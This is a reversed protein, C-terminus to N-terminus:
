YVPIGFTTAFEAGVLGGIFGAIIMLGSLAMVPIAFLMYYVPQSERVEIFYKDEDVAKIPILNTLFKEVQHDNNSATIDLNYTGSEASFKKLETRGTDWGNSYVRFWTPRLRIEEGTLQNTLSLKFENVPTKRFLQGKQWIAYVGKAEIRFATKKQTFPIEIILKGNFTKRLMRIARVLFYIGASVCAFMLIRFLLVSM